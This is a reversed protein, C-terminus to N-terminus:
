KVGLEKGPKDGAALSMTKGLFDEGMQFYVRPPHQLPREFFILGTYVTDPAIETPWFYNGALRGIKEILREAEQIEQLQSSPKGLLWNELQCRWKVPRGQKMYKKLRGYVEVIKEQPFDAQIDRLSQDIEQAHRPLLVRLRKLYDSAMEDATVPRMRNNDANTLQVFHRSVRLSSVQSRNEIRLRLMVPDKEDNMETYFDTFGIQGSAKWVAGAAPGALGLALFLMGVAKM